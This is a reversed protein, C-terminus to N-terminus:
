SSKRRRGVLGMLGLGGVFLPLAAPIPVVNPAGSDYFTLHSLSNTPTFWDGSNSVTAAGLCSDSYAVVCSALDAMDVNWFLNFANSAKAAWYRINPDGAGPTYTFAGTGDGNNEFDFESGDVSAFLGLKDPNTLDGQDFKAILPSFETGTPGVVICNTGMTGGFIGACDNGDLTVSFIAASAPHSFSAVAGFALAATAGLVSNKFITM